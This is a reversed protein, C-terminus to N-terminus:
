SRPAGRLSCESVRHRQGCPRGNQDPIPCRHSYRCSPQTCSSLHFRMCVQQGDIQQFWSRDWGKGLKGSPKGKEGKKGGKGGSNKGKQHNYPQLQRHQEGKGKGKPARPRAQMLTGIDSRVESMEHLADDLAWEKENTLEFVKEFLLRDASMAESLTPARLGSSEEYHCTYHTLFRTDLKKFNALHCGGSLAYANRRIAQLQSIWWPSARVESDSIHPVEDWLMQTLASVDARPTRLAKAELIESEKAESLVQNWPIWKFRGAPRCQAHVLSWFRDGPVTCKDLLEGPYHARFTEKMVRQDEWSLRAPATDLWSTSSPQAPVPQSAAPRGESLTHADWWVHRLAAAAPSFSWNNNNLRLAVSAPGGGTLKAEIYNDLTAEDRFAFNMLSASIYGDALVEEALAQPVNANVLIQRWRAQSDDAM